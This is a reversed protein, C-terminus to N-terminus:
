PDDQCEARKGFKGNRSSSGSPRHNRFKGCGKQTPTLCHTKKFDQTALAEYIEGAVGGYDAGFDLLLKRYLSKYGRLRELGAALDFGPSSEPLMGDASIAEDETSTEM